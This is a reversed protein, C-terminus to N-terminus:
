APMLGVPSPALTADEYRQGALLTQVAARTRLPDLPKILWGAVGVRRALFVDARRDLLLLVPVPDLRGAGAELAIDMAVAYGGMSGVQLDSVVLDAPVEQLAPIAAAGARVWRVNTGPEEVVATVEDYVRPSDTVILLDAM